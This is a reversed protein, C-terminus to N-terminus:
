SAPEQPEPIPGAWRASDARPLPEFQQLVPWRYLSLRGRYREVHVCHPTGGDGIRLWYWGPETPTEQTWAIAESQPPKPATGVVWEKVAVLENQAMALEARLRDVEDRITSDSAMTIDWANGCHLCRLQAPQAEVHVTNTAECAPCPEGYGERSVKQSM